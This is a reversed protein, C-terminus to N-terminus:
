RHLQFKSRGASNTAFRAYTGVLRTENTKGDDFNAPDDQWLKPIEGIGRKKPDFKKTKTPQNPKLDGLSGPDGPAPKLRSIANSM